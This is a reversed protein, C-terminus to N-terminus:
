SEVFRVVSFFARVPWSITKTIKERLPELRAQNHELVEHCRPCEDAYLFNGLQVGCHPCRSINM